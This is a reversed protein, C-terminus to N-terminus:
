NVRNDPKHTEDWHIALREACLFTQGCFPCTWPLFSEELFHQNEEFEPWWLLDRKPHFPCDMPIPVRYREMIPIFKQIFENIIIQFKDSYINIFRLFLAELLGQNTEQVHLICQSANMGVLM